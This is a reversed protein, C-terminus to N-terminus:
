ERPLVRLRSRPKPYDGGHVKGELGAAELGKRQERYWRALKLMEEYAALAAARHPLPAFPYSPPQQHLTRLDEARGQMREDAVLLAELAEEHLRAVTRYRVWRHNAWTTAIDPDAPSAPHFHRVLRRGAAVGRDSLQRILDAPMRLNLGGEGKHLRITAVRDYFGPVEMQSRDMWGHLTHLLSGFFATLSPRGKRELHQVRAAQPGNRTPLHVHQEADGPDLNPDAVDELTIGFTPRTPVLSDFYHIPFNSIIGGDSFWVRRLQFASGAEFTRLYLPIPCLLVPFSLSMRVALLVPLDAMLPLRTLGTRKLEADLAAIEAASGSPARAKALLHQVVCPPLLEALESACFYLRVEPELPFSFGRGLSLCTTMMRLDIRRAHPPADRDGWLDGFTLPTDEDLGALSQLQRHLWPTLAPDCDGPQGLGKVLGLGNRRILVASRGLAWLLALVLYVGLTLLAPGLDSGDARLELHAGLLPAVLPGFVYLLLAAPLIAWAIWVPLSLGLVLIALLLANHGMAAADWPLLHGTLAQVVLVALVAMLASGLPFYRPLGGLVQLARTSLSRPSTPDRADTGLAGLLWRFVQRTGPDPQFLSLLRTQGGAPAGLETPMAGLRAFGAADETHRRGFEAAAACSAAIAGASAGGISRLTYHASLVEIAGPYVLGSTIGGKMVLDCEPRDAAPALHPESPHPSQSSSM